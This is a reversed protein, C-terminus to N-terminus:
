QGHADNVEAIVATVILKVLEYFPKGFCHILDTSEVNNVERGLTEFTAALWSIMVLIM